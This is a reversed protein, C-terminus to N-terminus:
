HGSAFQFCMQIRGQASRIADAATSM